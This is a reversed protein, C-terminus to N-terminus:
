KSRLHISTKEQDIKKKYYQDLEPFKKAIPSNTAQLLMNVKTKM